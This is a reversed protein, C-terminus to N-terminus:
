GLKIAVVEIAKIGQFICFEICVKGGIANSLSEKFSRSIPWFRLFPKLINIGKVKLITM